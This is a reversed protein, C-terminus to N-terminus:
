FGLHSTKEDTKKRKLLIYLAGRGGLKEDPHTISLIFPRLDSNNLWQPVKERLIGKSSYIDDTEQKYGKGTVIIVCRKGSIYSDKIFCTVSNYAKDETYGHLDLTAEVKFKNSTFKKATSRDINDTSGISLNDLNNKTDLRVYQNDENIKIEIPKKYSVINDKKIPKISQTFEEWVEDDKM